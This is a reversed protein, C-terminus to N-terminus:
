EEKKYITKRLGKVYLTKRDGVQDVVETLKKVLYKARRVFSEYRMQEHGNQETVALSELRDKENNLVVILFEADLDFCEINVKKFRKEKDGANV